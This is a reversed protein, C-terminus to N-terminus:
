NFGAVHLLPFNRSLDESDRGCPFAFTKTRKQKRKEGNEVSRVGGTSTPVFLLLYFPDRTREHQTRLPDFNRSTGEM